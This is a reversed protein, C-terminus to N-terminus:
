KSPLPTYAWFNSNIVFPFLPGDFLSPHDHHSPFSPLLYFSYDIIDFESFSFLAVIM